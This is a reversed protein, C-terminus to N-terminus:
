KYKAGVELGDVEFSRATGPVDADHTQWDHRRRPARRYQIKFFLIALGDNEPVDWKLMVSSESIPYVSPASPPVMLEAPTLLAPSSPTLPRFLLRFSQYKISLYM